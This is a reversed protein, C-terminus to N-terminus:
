LGPQQPPSQVNVLVIVAIWAMTLAAGVGLTMWVYRMRVDPKAPYRNWIILAVIGAVVLPAFYCAFLAAGLGGFLIFPILACGIPGGLVVLLWPWWPQPRPEVYVVQPQPAIGGGAPRHWEQAAPRKASPQPALQPGPLPPLDDDELDVVLLDDNADQASETPSGCRPCNTERADVSHGCSPCYVSM